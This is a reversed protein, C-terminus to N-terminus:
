RPAGQVIWSSGIPTTGSGFCRIKGVGGYHCRELGAWRVAEAVREEATLGSFLLREIESM